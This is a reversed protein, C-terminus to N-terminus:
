GKKVISYMNLFDETTMKFFDSIMEKVEIETKLEDSRNIISVTKELSTLRDLVDKMDNTVVPAYAVETDITNETVVTAVVEERKKETNGTVHNNNTHIFDINLRKCRQRVSETNFYGFKDAIEVLTHNKAFAIFEDDSCKLSTLPMKTSNNNYSINFEKCKKAIYKKDKGFHMATEELTHKSVYAMFEKKNIYCRADTPINFDRCRERIYRISKNFHLATEEITHKSAYAVFEDKNIRPKSNNSSMEKVEEKTPYIIEKVPDPMPEVGVYRCRDMLEIKGLNFERCCESVTHTAAYSRLKAANIYTIGLMACEEDVERPELNFKSCIERRTHTPAYKRFERTDVIVM